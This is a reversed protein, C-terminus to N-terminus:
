GIEGTLGAYYQKEHIQALAELKLEDVNEGQKFEIVMNPREPSKSIMIIDTRGHVQEINSKIDYLERLNMVMGLFLMHYANEKNEYHSTSELVLRQYIKLFEDMESKILAKFMKQMMQSLLKTYTGVLRKFEAVIEKNPIRLTFDNLEYDSETVTLYGANVFLGWLTETEAMEMFSAELNLITNVQESIILVEFDLQFDYTAMEM